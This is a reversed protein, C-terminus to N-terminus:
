LKQFVSNDPDISKLKDVTQKMELIRNSDRYIEILNILYRSNSPERILVRDAYEIANNWQALRNFSYSVLFLVETNVPDIQSYKQAYFNLKTFDKIKLTLKVLNLLIQKNEGNLSYARELLEISKDLRGEKVELKSDQFLSQISDVTEALIPKRIIGAYRITLISIDKGISLSNEIISSISKLDLQSKYLIDIFMASEEKENYTFGSAIILTEKSNLNYLKLTLGSDLDREVLSIVDEEMNHILDDEFKLIQPFDISIYYMLGSISDILGICYAIQFSDGLYHFSNGLEKTFNVVYVEPSITQKYLSVRFISDHFLSAVLLSSLTKSEDSCNIKASFFVSYERNDLIIKDTITLIGGTEFVSDINKHIVSFELKVSESSGRNVNLRRYLQLKERQQATERLSFISSTQSIKKYESELTSLKESESSLYAQMDTLKLNITKTIDTFEDKGFGLSTTPLRYDTSILEFKSIWRNLLRLKQSLVIGYTLAILISIVFTLAVIPLLKTKSLLFLNEFPHITYYFGIFAIFEGSSDYIPTSTFISKKGGIDKTVIVNNRDKISPLLEPVQIDLQKGFYENSKEIQKSKKISEIYKLINVDTIIRYQNSNDLFFLFVTEILNSNSNKIFRLEQLLSLFESSTQVDIIDTDSLNQAYKSKIIKLNAIPISRSSVQSISKVKDKIETEMFQTQFRHYTYPLVLNIASFIVFFLFLTKLAVSIKLSM